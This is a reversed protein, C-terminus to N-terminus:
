TLSHQNLEEVAFSPFRSSEFSTSSQRLISGHDEYSCPTRCEGFYKHFHPGGTQLSFQNYVPIHLLLFLSNIDVMKSWKLDGGTVLKTGLFIPDAFCM